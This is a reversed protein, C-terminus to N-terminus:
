TAFTEKLLKKPDLSPGSYVKDTVNRSRNPTDFRKAHKREKNEDLEGESYTNTQIIGCM